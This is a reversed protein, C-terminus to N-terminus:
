IWFHKGFASCSVCSLAGTLGWSAQSCVSLPVHPRGAEGGPWGARCLEAEASVLAALAAPPVRVSVELGRGSDVAALFAKETHTNKNM